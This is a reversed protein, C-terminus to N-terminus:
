IKTTTARMTSLNFEVHLTKTEILITCTAKSITLADEINELLITFEKTLPDYTKLTNDEVMFLRGGGCGDGVVGECILSPDINFGHTM